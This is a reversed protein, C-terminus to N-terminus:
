RHTYFVKEIGIKVRARELEKLLNEQTAFGNSRMKRKRKKKLQQQLQNSATAVATAYYCYQQASLPENCDIKSPRWVRHHSWPATAVGGEISIDLGCGRRRRRWCRHMPTKGGEEKEEFVKKRPWSRSSLSPPAAEERRGM